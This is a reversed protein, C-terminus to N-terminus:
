SNGPTATDGGQGALRTPASRALDKYFRLAEVVEPSNVVVKLDKDFM